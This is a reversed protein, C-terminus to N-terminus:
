YHYQLHHCQQSSVPSDQQRDLHVYIVGGERQLPQFRPIPLSPTHKDKEREMCVAKERKIYTKIKAWRGHDTTYIQGESKFVQVPIRDIEMQLRGWDVECVSTYACSIQGSGPSAIKFCVYTKYKLFVYKAHKKYNFVYYFVTHLPIDTIRRICWSRCQNTKHAKWLHTRGRRQKQQIPQGLLPLM